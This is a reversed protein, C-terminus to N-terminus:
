DMLGSSDLRVMSAHIGRYVRDYTDVLVRSTFRKAEEAAAARATSADQGIQVDMASALDNVSTSRAMTGAAGRVLEPIGGVPTAVVPRAFAFSEIVVRGLPENWVSPVVTVDVLPFFDDPSMQGVFEVQLGKARLKLGEVYDSAGSGAILLRSGAHRRIILAFADIMLDVGKSPALRGLYGLVTGARGTPPPVPTTPPDYPNYIVSAPVGPFYGNRTHLAVM